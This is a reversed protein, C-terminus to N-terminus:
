KNDSSSLPNKELSAYESHFPLYHNHCNAGEGLGVEGQEWFFFFFASFSWFEACKTVTIGTEVSSLCLSGAPM